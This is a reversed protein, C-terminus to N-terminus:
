LQDYHRSSKTKSYESIDIIWSNLGKGQNLKHKRKPNSNSSNSTPAGLFEESQKVTYKANDIIGDVDYKYKISNDNFRM